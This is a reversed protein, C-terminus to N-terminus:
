SGVGIDYLPAADGAPAKALHFGEFFVYDGAEEEWRRLFVNHVKFLLEGAKFGSPSEATLEATFREEEEPDYDDWFSRGYGCARAVYSSKM